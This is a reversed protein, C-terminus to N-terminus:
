DEGALLPHLQRSFKRGARALCTRSSNRESGQTGQTRVGPYAALDTTRRPASVCRGDHRDRSRTVPSTFLNSRAPDRISRLRVQGKPVTEPRTFYTPCRRAPETSRSLNRCLIGSYSTRPSMRGKAMDWTKDVLSRATSTDRISYSWSRREKGRHTPLKAPCSSLFCFRRRECSFELGRRAWLASPKAKPWVGAPDCFM